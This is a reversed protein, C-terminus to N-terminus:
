LSDTYITIKIEKPFVEKIYEYSYRQGPTYYYTEYPVKYFREQYKLVEYGWYGNEDCHEMEEEVLEVDVRNRWDLFEAKTNFKMIM